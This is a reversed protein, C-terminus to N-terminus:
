DCNESVNKFEQMNSVFCALKSSERKGFVLWSVRTQLVYVYELGALVRMMKKHM